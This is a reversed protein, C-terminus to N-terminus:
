STAAAILLQRGSIRITMNEALSIGASGELHGISDYM